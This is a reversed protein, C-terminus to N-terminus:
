ILCGSRSNLRDYVTPKDSFDGVALADFLFGLEDAVFRVVPRGATLATAGLGTTVAGGAAEAISAACNIDRAKNCDLFAVGASAATSGLSVYTSVQLASAGLVTLGPAAIGATGIILAAGGLVLATGLLVDKLKLLGLPDVYVLPNGGVYGYAEETISAIPDRSIFQGTGPDYMRARLNVLGSADQLEGTYSRPSGQGTADVIAQGRLNGWPDRDVTRDVAGTGDTFAVPTGVQDPHHWQDPHSPAKTALIGTPGQLFTNLTTGSGNTIAALEPVSWMPDWIFNKTSTTTSESSRNGDGDYAFNTTLGADTSSKMLGDARWTYIRSIAPIGIGGTRSESTRNGAADHGYTIALGVSPTVSLLHDAADYAYTNTIGTAVETLRNGVDDYTWSTKPDTPLTCSAQRCEWALRHANDYGYTTTASPRTLTTIEGVDGRTFSRNDIVTSSPGTTVISALLGDNDYGRAESVGNPLATSALRGDLDWDFTTTQTGQVITEPRGVSDYGQTVTGLSPVTRSTIRSADDYDYDWSRSGQDISILRGADDYGYTWTGGGDTMSTIRGVADYVRTVDPTATDSYDVSAVRGM